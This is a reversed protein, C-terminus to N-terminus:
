SYFHKEQRRNRGTSWLGWTGGLFIWPTTIPHGRQGPWHVLVLLIYPTTTNALPSLLRLPTEYSGIVYMKFCHFHECRHLPQYNPMNHYRLTVWFSEYLLMLIRCVKHPVSTYTCMCVCVYGCICVYMIQWDATNDVKVTLGRCSDCRATRQIILKWQWGWVLWMIQCDTTNDVNAKLGRYTVILRNATTVVNLTLGRYNV